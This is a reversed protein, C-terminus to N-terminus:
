DGWRNKLFILARLLNLKYTLATWFHPLPFKQHKPYNFADLLEFQNKTPVATDKEGLIMYIENQSRLKAFYIPDIKILKKLKKFFLKKSSIGERKMRERRWQAVIKQKSHTLIDPLNGGAVLVFAADIRPEVELALTSRIGGLSYGFIGIKSTDVSSEGELFDIVRSISVQNRILFGDVDSTPRNPDSINESLEVVVAHVGLNAVFSAVDSEIYTLGIISPIILVVPRQGPLKNKYWTFTTNMQVNKTPDIGRVKGVYKKYLLKKKKLKFSILEQHPDYNFKKLREEIEKDSIQNAIAMFPLLFVVLIWPTRM